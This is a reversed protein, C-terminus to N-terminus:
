TSMGALSSVRPWPVVPMALSQFCWRASSNLAAGGAAFYSAGTANLTARSTIMLSSTSSRSRTPSPARRRSGSSWTPCRWSAGAMPRASRTSRWTMPSSARSWRRTCPTSPMSGAPRSGRSRIPRAGTGPWSSRASSLTRCAAHTASSSPHSSTRWTDAGGRTRSWWRGPGRFGGRVAARGARGRDPLGHVRGGARGHLGLGLGRSARRSDIGWIEIESPCARGHGAARRAPVAAGAARGSPRLGGDDPGDGRLARGGGPERGEPVPPGARAARAAVGFAAAIAQM